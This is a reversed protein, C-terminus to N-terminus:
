NVYDKKHSVLNAREKFHVYCYVRGKINKHGFNECRYLYNDRHVMCQCQHKVCEYYRVMINDKDRTAFDVCMLANGCYCKYKGDDILRISKGDERQIDISM